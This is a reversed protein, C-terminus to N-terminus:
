TEDVWRDLCRSFRVARDEASEGPVSDFFHYSYNKSGVEIEERLASYEEPSRNRRSSLLADDDESLYVIRACDFGVSSNDRIAEQVRSVFRDRFGIKPAWADTILSKSLGHAIYETACIEWMARNRFDAHAAMDAYFFDSRLESFIRCLTTKGVGPLGHLLLFTRRM